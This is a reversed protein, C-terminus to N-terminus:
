FDGSPGRIQVNAFRALWYTGPPFKAPLGALWLARAAQYETLWAANYQLREIRRWKNRSAVRPSIDRHSRCSMATDRWSQRMVRRRGLVPRTRTRACEAEEAAIRRRLEAIVEDPDGLEPPITPAYEVVAPMSGDTSFFRPRTARLTRKNLLAQVFKPGPWQHVKEVLGAKVPNMAIYVLQSIWAERDLPEVVSTQESAWLNEWRGRQLNVCKALHAHFRQYFEVRNGDRDFTSEHAHNSMMTANVVQVNFKLAAEILCYLFANNTDADPRLLFQQQTCGRTVMASTNPLVPRARTM